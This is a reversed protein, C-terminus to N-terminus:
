ENRLEERRMANYIEMDMAEFEGCRTNEWHYDLGLKTIFTEGCHPCVIERKISM